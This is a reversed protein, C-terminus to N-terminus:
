IHILSLDYVAYRQVNWVITCDCDFKTSLHSTYIGSKNEDVRIDGGSGDSNKKNALYIILSPCAITDRKFHYTPHVEVPQIYITDCEKENSAKITDYYFPRDGNILKHHDRGYSSYSRRTDWNVVQGQCLNLLPYEIM